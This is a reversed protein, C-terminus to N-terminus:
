VTRTSALRNLNESTESAATRAAEMQSRQGDGGTQGLEKEDAM